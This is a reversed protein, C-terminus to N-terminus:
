TFIVKSFQELRIRRMDNLFFLMICKFFYPVTKFLKFFTRTDSNSISFNIRMATKIKEKQSLSPFDLQDIEDQTQLSDNSSALILYSMFDAENSLLKDRTKSGVPDIFCIISLFCNKCTSKVAKYCSKLSGLM